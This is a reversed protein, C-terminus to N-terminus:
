NKIIWQKIKNYREQNADTLNKSYISGFFLQTEEKWGQEILLEMADFIFFTRNEKELPSYILKILSNLAEKKKGLRLYIQTQLFLMQTYNAPFYIYNKAKNLSKLATKFEQNNIQKKTQILRYKQQELPNLEKVSIQEIIKKSNKQSESEEEMIAQLFLWSNKRYDLKQPITFPITKNQRISCYNSAIERDMKELPSEQFFPNKGYKVCLNWHSQLYLIEQSLLQVSAKQFTNKKLYNQYIKLAKHFKLQRKHQEALLVVKKWLSLSNKKKSSQYEQTIILNRHHIHKKETSYLLNLFINDAANKSSTVSSNLAIIKELYQISTDWNELQHYAFSLTEYLKIESINKQQLKQLAFNIAENYLKNALWVRLYLDSYFPQNQKKIKKLYALAKKEKGLKLLSAIYFKDSDYTYNKKSNHLQIIKKYKKERFLLSSKLSQIFSSRHTQALKIYKLADENHGFRDNAWARFFFQEKYFKNKKNNIPALNLIKDAKKQLYYILALYYLTQATYNKEQLDTQLSAQHNVLSREAQKYQKERLYIFGINLNIQSFFKQSNKSLLLSANRAKLYYPLAQKYKDKKRLYDAKQINYYFVLEPTKLEIYEQYLTEKQKSSFKKQNLLVIVAYPYFSSNKVEKLLTTQLQKNFPRKNKLLNDLFFLYALEEKKTFNNKKLLTTKTKKTLIKKAFLSSWAKWYNLQFIEEKSFGKTKLENLIKYAASYKNQNYYNWAQLLDFIQSISDTKNKKFTQLFNLKKQVEDSDFNKASALISAFQLNYPVPINLYYLQWNKIQFPIKHYDKNKLYLMTQLYEAPLAIKLDPSHYIKDLFEQAQEFDGDLYFVWALWLQVVEKKAQNLLKLLIKKAQILDPNKNKLFNKTTSFIIELDQPNNTPINKPLSLNVGEWNTQTLDLELLHKEVLFFLESFNPKYFHYFDLHATINIDEYVPKYAEM